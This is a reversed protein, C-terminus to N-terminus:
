VWQMWRLWVVHQVDSATWTQKLLLEKEGVAAVAVAAVSVVAASGFVM